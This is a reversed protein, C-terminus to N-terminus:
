FSKLMLTVTTGKGVESEIKLDAGVVKIIEIIFRYGLNFSTNFNLDPSSMQQYINDIQQTSMGKGEDSCGILCQNNEKSGFLVIQGEQAYKSANELLNNFIISLFKENCRITFDDPVNIVIRSELSPYTKVKYEIIKEFFLRINIDTVTAKKDSKIKAWTLFEILFDHLNAHAEALENMYKNDVGSSTSNKKLQESINKMFRVPALIDHAIVMLFFEYQESLIKEKEVKRLISYYYLGEYIAEVITGILVAVAYNLINTDWFVHGVNQDYNLDFVKIVIYTISTLLLFTQAFFFATEFVLRKLTNHIGPYRDRSYLLLERNFLWVTTLTFYMGLFLPFKFFPPHAFHLNYYSIGLYLTFPIIMIPVFVRDDFRMIEDKKFFKQMLGRKRM